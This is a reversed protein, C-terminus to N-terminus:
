KRDTGDELEHWYREIAVRMLQARSQVQAKRFLQRVFAKVSSESIGLENAIEKNGSGRFVGRLVQAERQTLPRRQAEQDASFAEGAATDAMDVDPEEGSMIQRIRNILLKPKEHKRFIGACGKQKLRAIELKGVGATVVLVKGQYGSSRALGMFAGGQKSGLNIDLLVLDIPKTKVIELGEDVTGAEGAVELDPEASLMRGIAERFLAHDDILLIRTKDPM